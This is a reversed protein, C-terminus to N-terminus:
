GDAPGRYSQDRAVVTDPDVRILRYDAPDLEAFRDPWRDREAGLYRSRLRGARGADYPEVAARGRVGVHQVRGVAPDFDVIAVAIRPDDAVRAPYSRGSLQAIHWPAGDEWLFWLPSVRPGDSSSQALFSFLPRELFTALEIDLTNEVIQM